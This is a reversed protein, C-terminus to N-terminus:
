AFGAAHFLSAPLADIRADTRVGLLDDVLTAVGHADALLLVGNARLVRAAEDLLEVLPLTGVVSSAALVSIGDVCGDPTRRLLEKASVSEVV